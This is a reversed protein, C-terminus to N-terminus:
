LPEFALIDLSSLLPTIPNRLEHSIVTIFDQKLKNLEEVRERRSREVATSVAAKTRKYQEKSFRILQAYLRHVLRHTIVSIAAMFSLLLLALLPRYYYSDVSALLTSDRYAANIWLTIVTTILVAVVMVSTLRVDSYHVYAILQLSFLGIM